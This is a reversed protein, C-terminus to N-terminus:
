LTRIVDGMDGELGLGARLRRCHAEFSRETMSLLNASDHSSLGIRLLICIKWESESVAPYRSVIRELFEGLADRSRLDIPEWDRYLHAARELRELLQEIIPRATSSCHPSIATLGNRVADVLEKHDLARSAISRLEIIDVSDAPTEETRRRPDPPTPEQDPM